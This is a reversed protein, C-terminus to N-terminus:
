LVGRMRRRRYEFAADAVIVNEVGLKYNDNLIGILSEDSMNLMDVKKNQPLTDKGIRPTSSNLNENAIGEAIADLQELSMQPPAEKVHGIPEQQTADGKARAVEFKVVNKQDRIGKEIDDNM